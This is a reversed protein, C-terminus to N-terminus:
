FVFALDRINTAGIRVGRVTVYLRRGELTLESAVITKGDTWVGVKGTPPTGGRTALPVVREGFLRALQAASPAAEGRHIARRIRQMKSGRVLYALDRASAREDLFRRGLPTLPVEVLEHPGVEDNWYRGYTGSVQCADFPPSPMGGLAGANGLHAGMEPGVRANSGGGLSEWRGGGFAVTYCDLGAVGSSSRSSRVLRRFAKAETSRFRLEVVGNRYVDVVALPTSSRQLPAEDPRAPPGPAWVSSKAPPEAVHPAARGVGELPERYVETGREDYAAIAVWPRDPISHFSYANGRVDAKLPPGSKAVLGVSAVGRGALGTVKMLRMRPNEVSATMAVDVTIPRRPTPVLEDGPAGANCSLSGIKSDGFSPNHRGGVPGSAVCTLGWPYRVRWHIEVGDNAIQEVTPAGDRCIVEPARGQRHSFALRRCLSQVLLRRDRPTLSSLPVPKGHEAFLGIVDGGIALGAAALALVLALALVAMRGVRRRARRRVERWDGDEPGALKRFREQLLREDAVSM